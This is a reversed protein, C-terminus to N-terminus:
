KLCSAENASLRCINLLRYKSDDGRKLLFEVQDGISVRPDKASPLAEFVSVKAKMSTGHVVGHNITVIGSNIDTVMGKSHGIDGKQYNPGFMAKMDPKAAQHQSSPKNEALPVVTSEVANCSILFVAAISLVSTCNINMKFDTSLDKLSKM